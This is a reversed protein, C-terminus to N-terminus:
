SECASGKKRTTFKHYRPLEHERCAYAIIVRERMTFAKMVPDPTALAFKYAQEEHHQAGRSAAVDHLYAAALLLEKEKSNLKALRALHMAEAAVEDAHDMRHARDHQAYIPVVYERVAQVRNM